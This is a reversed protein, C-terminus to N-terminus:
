PIQAIVTGSALSAGSANVATVYYSWNTGSALASDTDTYTPSTVTAVLGANGSGQAARYVKYSTVNDSPANAAWSLSVGSTCDDAAALMAPAAPRGGGSTQGPIPGIAYRPSWSFSLAANDTGLYQRRRIETYIALANQLETTGYLNSLVTALGIGAACQQVYSHPANYLAGGTVTCITDKLTPEANIAAIGPWPMPMQSFVIAPGIQITDGANVSGNYYYGVPYSLTITNGSIATICNPLIYSWSVGATNGIGIANPNSADYVAMGIAVGAPVSSLQLTTAGAAASAAATTSAVGRTAGSVGSGGTGPVASTKITPGASNGTSPDVRTYLPFDNFNYTQVFTGPTGMEVGDIGHALTIVNSGATVSGIDWMNSANGIWPQNALIEDWTSYLNTATPDGCVAQYLDIGFISGPNGSNSQDAIGIPFRSAYATVFNVLDPYEGRWAEM